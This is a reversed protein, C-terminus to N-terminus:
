RRSLRRRRAGWLLLPLVEIGLLGCRQDMLVENDSWLNGCDPDAMDILGDGENDIGDSCSPSESKSYQDRCGPDLGDVLGDGDNDLQDSCETPLRPDDPPTGLDREDGDWWGDGDRDLGLRQGSGLPVCTFTIEQGADQGLSRLAATSVPPDAARDPQFSGGGAYLWGRPEGGVVGKAVLECRGADDQAALLNIRAITSAGSFNAPAATVQQGVSPKHGTDFALMFQELENEQTNSLQFVSSTLFLKLTPVSGDHLFGFGRVQNGSAAFMGVKTYMNRLHAIKFTQPEGEFSSLGDTGTPLDHCTNCAIAGGDPTLNTFHSAGTAAQGTLVDDLPRVPSPPYELALAFDTFKQM